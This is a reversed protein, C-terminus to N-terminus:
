TEGRALYEVVASQDDEGFGAAIAAAFTAITTELLPCAAGLARTAESVLEMNQQFVSMTGMRQDKGHAGSAMMASRVDIIASTVPSGKVGEVVAARDVGAREAYAMAEAIAVCEIGALATAIHKLVTGAGVDGVYRVHVAMAELVPRVRDFAAREGSAFIAARGARLMPPTGSVPCDLLKGGAKALRAAQRRKEEVSTTSTEIVVLGPVASALLGGDRSFVEELAAEDPLCTVVVKRGALAEGISGAATGGAAVLDALSGRRYGAVGIGAAILGEAMALGLAGVGIMAVESVM